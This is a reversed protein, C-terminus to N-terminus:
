LKDYYNHRTEQYTTKTGLKLATLFFVTHATYVSKVIGAAYELKNVFDSM